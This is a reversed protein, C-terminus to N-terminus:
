YSVTITNTKLNVKADDAYIYNKGIAYGLKTQSLIGRITSVIHNNDKYQLTVKSGLMTNLKKINSETKM